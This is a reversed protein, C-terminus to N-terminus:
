KQSREFAEKKGCSCSSCYNVTSCDTKPEEVKPTEAVNVTYSAGTAITLGISGTEGVGLVLIKNNPFYKEFGKRLQSMSYETLDDSKITVVLVEEPDLNLRALDVQNIKTEADAELDLIRDLALGAVSPGIFAHDPANIAHQARLSADLDQLMKKLDLKM